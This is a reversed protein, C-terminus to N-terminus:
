LGKLYGQPIQNIAQPMKIKVKETQLDLKRLQKCHKLDQKLEKTAYIRNKDSGHGCPIIVGSIQRSRDVASNGIIYNKDILKEAEAAPRAKM